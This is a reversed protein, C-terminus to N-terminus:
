ELVGSSVGGTVWDTVLCAVSITNGPRFVLSLTFQKGMTSENFDVGAASKLNVPVSASRFETEIELIYDTNQASADKSACLVYAVEESAHYPISYPTGGPFTEDSDTKYLPLTKNLATESFSICEAWATGYAKSLDVEAVDMSQIRIDKIKGWTNAVEESEAKIEFRLWTLLHHFHLTPNISGGSSYYGHVKDAYMIDECGTFEHETKTGGGLTQWGTEPYLGVFYIWTADKSYIIGELLQNQGNRFNAATHYAVKYVGANNGPNGEDAFKVPDTSAWVAAPLPHEDNPSDPDTDSDSAPIYPARTSVAEEVSASIYVRYDGQEGMHKECSVLCLVMCILILSIRRM